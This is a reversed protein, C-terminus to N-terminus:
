KETEVVEIEDELEDLQVMDLAIISEEDALRRYDDATETTMALGDEMKNVIKEEYDRQFSDREEQKQGTKASKLGKQVM